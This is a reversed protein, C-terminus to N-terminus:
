VFLSIDCQDKRPKFLALNQEQFIETFVTMSLPSQIGDDSCREKYLSYIESKSKFDYQLYLKMSKKRCYHSEMKPLDDLFKKAHKKLNNQREYLVSTKKVESRQHNRSERSDLLGFSKEKNVWHQVMKEKIGLTNLFTKKCVQYKGTPIKLFYQYTGQRRTISSNTYSRTKEEYSVMSIIYLRKQEWEMEWFKSFINKRDEEVLTDCFRNNAAKCFNSGCVTGFIRKERVTDHKVIGDKNVSYGIYELGLMRKEKMKNKECSYKSISVNEQVACLFNDNTNHQENKDTEHVENDMLDVVAKSNDVKELIQGINENKDCETTANCDILNPVIIVIPNADEYIEDQQQKITYLIEGM